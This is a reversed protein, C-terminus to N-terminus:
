EQKELPELPTMEYGEVKVDWWKRFARFALGRFPVRSCFGVLYLRKWYQDLAQDLNRDVTRGLSVEESGDPLVGYRVVYLVDRM